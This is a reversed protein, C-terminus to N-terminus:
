VCMITTGKHIDRTKCFYECEQECEEKTKCCFYNRNFLQRNILFLKLVSKLFITYKYVIYISEM